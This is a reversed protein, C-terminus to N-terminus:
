PRVVLFSHYQRLLFRYTVATAIRQLRSRPTLLQSDGRVFVPVKARRCARGAQWYSKLHWGSVIFADFASNSIIGAIDPTDCGTFHSAGPKKAVNKLFRLKYGSLLDVDWQFATGSGNGQQAADPRHAFFVELDTEKSLARFWPAQYQIPHSTLIGLKM